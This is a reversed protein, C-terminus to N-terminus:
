NHITNNNKDIVILSISSNNKEFTSYETSSFNYSNEFPKLKTLREPHCNITRKLLQINQVVLTTVIKM